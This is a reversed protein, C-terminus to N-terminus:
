TEFPVMMGYAAHIKLKKRVTLIDIGYEGIFNTGLLMNLKLDKTLWADVVFHAHVSNGDIRGIVYFDFRAKDTIKLPGTVGQM